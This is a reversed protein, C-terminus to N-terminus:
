AFNCALKRSKLFTKVFLLHFSNTYDLVAAGGRYFVKWYELDLKIITQWEKIKNNVTWLFTHAWDM